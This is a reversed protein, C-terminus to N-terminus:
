PILKKTEELTKGVESGADSGKVADDEISEVARGAEGAADQPVGGQSPDIPLDV